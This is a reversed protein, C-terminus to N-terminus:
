KTVKRYYTSGKDSGHMLNMLEEARELTIGCYNAYEVLPNGRLARKHAMVARREEKSMGEVEKLDQMRRANRFTLYAKTREAEQLTMNGEQVLEDLYYQAVQPKHPEAGRLYYPMTAPEPMRAMTASCTGLLSVMVLLLVKYDM